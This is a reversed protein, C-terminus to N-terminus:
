FELSMVFITTIEGGHYQTFQDYIYLCKSLHRSKPPKKKIGYNLPFACLLSFTARATPLWTKIQLKVSPLPFDAPVCIDKPWMAHQNFVYTLLCITWILTRARGGVLEIFSPLDSLARYKLKEPYSHYHCHKYWPRQYGVSYRQTFEFHCRLTPRIPTPASLPATHDLFIPSKRWFLTFPKVFLAWPAKAVAQGRLQPGQDLACDTYGAM